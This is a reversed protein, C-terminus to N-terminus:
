RAEDEGEEFEVTSDGGTFLIRLPRGEGALKARCAVGDPIGALWAEGGDLDARLPARVGECRIAVRHFREPDAAVHADAPGTPPRRRLFPLRLRIRLRRREVLAGFLIDEVVYTLTASADAAGGPALQLQAALGIFGPRRVELAYTGPPLGGAVARGDPGSTLATIPTSDGAVADTRRLEATANPLPLGEEDVVFLRLASPGPLDGLPGSVV